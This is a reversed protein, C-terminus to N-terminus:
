GKLDIRGISSVRPNSLPWMGTNRKAQMLAHTHVSFHTNRHNKWYCFNFECLILMNKPSTSQAVSSCVCELQYIDKKKKM